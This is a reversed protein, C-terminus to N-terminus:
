RLPMDKPLSHKALLNTKLENEILRGRQRCSQELRCQHEIDPWWPQRAVLKHWLTSKCLPPWRSPESLYTRVKGANAYRFVINACYHITVKWFPNNPKVWRPSTISTTAILNNSQWAKCWLGRTPGEHWYLHFRDFPDEIAMRGNWMDVENRLWTARDPDGAEELYDAYIMRPMDTLPSQMIESVFPQDTAPLLSIVDPTKTPM